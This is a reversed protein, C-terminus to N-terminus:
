LNDENVRYRLGKTCACFSLMGSLAETWAFFSSKPGFFSRFFCLQSAGIELCSLWMGSKHEYKVPYSKTDAPFAIWYLTFKAKINSKNENRGNAVEGKEVGGLQIAHSVLLQRCNSIHAGANKHWETAATLHLILCYKWISCESSHKVFSQTTSFSATTM